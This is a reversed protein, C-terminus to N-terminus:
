NPTAKSFVLVMWLGGFAPFRYIASHPVSAPPDTEHKTRRIVVRQRGVRDTNRDLLADALHCRRDPSLDVCWM